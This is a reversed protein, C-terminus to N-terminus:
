IARCHFADEGNGQGGGHGGEEIDHDTGDLLAVGEEKDKFNGEEEEEGDAQDQKEHDL